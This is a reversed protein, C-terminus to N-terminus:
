KFAKLWDDFEKLHEDITCGPGVLRIQFSADAPAFTIVVLKYNLKPKEDAALNFRDFVDPKWAGSVDMRTAKKGGVTVVSYTTMDDVTKGEPPVFQERWREANAPAKDHVLRYVILQADGEKGKLRFQALHLMSSLPETKWAPPGAPISDFSLREKEEASARSALAAVALLALCSTRM